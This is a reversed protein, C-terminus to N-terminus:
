QTTLDVPIKASGSPIKPPNYMDAYRPEHFVIKAQRTLDEMVGLSYEASEQERLLATIEPTASALSKGHKEYQARHKEYYGRVDADSVRVDNAVIKDLQLETRILTPVGSDPINRVALMDNWKKGPFQIRLERERAAVEADTVVIHHQEAYQNVMTEDILHGLAQRAEPHQEIKELVYARSIAQGNVTVAAGSSGSSCATFLTSSLLAAFGAVLHPAKRM